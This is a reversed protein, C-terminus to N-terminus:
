DLVRKHWARLIAARVMPKAGGLDQRTTLAHSRLGNTALALAAYRKVVPSTADSYIGRLIPSHNWDPSSGFIHLIWMAVFEPASPKNKRLQALLAKATR